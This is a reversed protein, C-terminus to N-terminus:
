QIPEGPNAYAYGVSNMIGQLEENGKSLKQYAREAVGLYRLGREPNTEYLEEAKKLCNRV